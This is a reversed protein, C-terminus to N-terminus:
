HEKAILPCSTASAQQCPGHRSNAGAPSRSKTGGFLLCFAGGSRAARRKAEPVRHQEPRSPGRLVGEAVSRDFLQASDTSSARQARARLDKRQEAASFPTPRFAEFARGERNANRSNPQQAKPQKPDGRRFRRSACCGLARACRAEVESKAVRQRLATLLAFSALQARGQTALMSPFGGAPHATKCPRKRQRSEQACLFTPRGGPRVGPVPRALLGFVSM